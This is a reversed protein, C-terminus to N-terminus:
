RTEGNALRDLTDDAARVCLETDLAAYFRETIKTNAHDLIRSVTPLATPDERLLIWAYLHRVLHLHMGVDLRQRIVDAVLQSLHDLGLHTGPNVPSPFLFDNEIDGSVRMLPQAATMYRAIQRWAGDAIRREIPRGHKTEHAPVVLWGDPGHVGPAVFHASWRLCGLNARRMPCIRLMQLAVAEMMRRALDANLSGRRRRARAVEALITTHLTLFQRIRVDDFQQLRELNHRSMGNERDQARADRVLQRLQSLDNEAFVALRRAVSRLRAALTEAYASQDRDLRNPGDGTDHRADLSELVITVAEPDVLHEVRTLDASEAHGADILSKAATLLARRHGAATTATLPACAGGGTSARYRRTAPRPRMADTVYTDIAAHLEASLDASTTAFRWGAHPLPSLRVQPWGQDTLRESLDNWRKIANRIIERNESEDRGFRRPDKALDDRLMAVVRDDVDKPAIGAADCVRALRSIAAWASDGHAKALEALGGWERGLQWSPNAPEVTGHLELARLLNRRFNRWRKPNPKGRRRDFPISIGFRRHATEGVLEAEIAERRAAITELPRQLARAFRDLDRVIEHREGVNAVVSAKVDALSAVHTAAVRHANLDLGTVAELRDLLAPAPYAVQGAMVRKFAPSRGVRRGLEAGSVDNEACWARLADALPGYSHVPASRLLVPDLRTVASLKRAAADGVGREGRLIRAVAGQSLDASLALQRPTVGHEDCWSSLAAAAPSRHHHPTGPSTM